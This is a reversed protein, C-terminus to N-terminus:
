QYQSSFTGDNTVGVLTDACGLLGLDALMKDVLARKESVPMKRPMRLMASFFLSERPTYTPCLLDEQVVYAIRKRLGAGSLKHGDLTITGSIRQSAGKSHIRNALINLLSTKGAGSPGLIACVEGGGLSGSIGPAQLIEKSKKGKGVGYTVNSWVFESGYQKKESPIVVAVPVAEEGVRM